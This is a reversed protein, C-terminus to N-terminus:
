DNLTHMRGRRGRHYPDTVSVRGFGGHSPTGKLVMMTACWIPRRRKGRFHSRAIELALLGLVRRSAVAPHYGTAGDPGFWAPEALTPDDMGAARDGSRLRLRQPTRRLVINLKHRLFLNEVELRRRSKFLDRCVNWAFPPDCADNRIIRQNEKM